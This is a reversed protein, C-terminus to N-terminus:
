SLSVIDGKLYREVSIKKGSRHDVVIGNKVQITRIKDSREGSGIQSRRDSRESESAKSESAAAIRASLLAFATARNQQQSRETECRVYVGTPRHKIQVASDTKNRKQGGPGSGRCTTVDCDSERIAFSQREIVPFVAVTITSSHVKDKRENPPVRQWRHGGSENRMLAEAGDGAISIVVMGDWEDVLEADFVVGSALRATSRWNNM